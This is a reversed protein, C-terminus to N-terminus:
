RQLARRSHTHTTLAYLVQPSGARRRKLPRRDLVAAAYIKTTNSQWL